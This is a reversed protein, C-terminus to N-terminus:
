SVFVVCGVARSLVNCDVICVLVKDHSHGVHTDEGMMRERLVPLGGNCAGLRLPEYDVTIPAVFVYTCPDFSALVM